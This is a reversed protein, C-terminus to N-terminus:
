ETLSKFNNFGWYFSDLNNVRERIDEPHVFNKLTNSCADKKSKYQIYNLLIEKDNLVAFRNERKQAFSYAEETKKWFDVLREKTFFTADYNVPALSKDALIFTSHSSSIEPRCWNKIDGIKFDINDKKLKDINLAYIDESSENLYIKNLSAVNIRRFFIKHVSKKFINKIEEAKEKRFINDADFKFFWETQCEDLSRQLISRIEEYSQLKQLKWQKDLKIELECRSKIEDKLNLLKQYSAHEFQRYIDPEAEAAAYNVVIKDAFHSVSKLSEIYPYMLKEPEALVCFATIM